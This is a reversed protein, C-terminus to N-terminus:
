DEKRRLVRGPTKGTVKGKAMAAKGNVFVYDMGTSYRHPDTFSNTVKVSEPRFVLVDAAYGPAIRGRRSLDLRQAALTTMKRIAEELGM